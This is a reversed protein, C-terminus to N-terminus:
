RGAKASGAFTSLVESLMDPTITLSGISPM